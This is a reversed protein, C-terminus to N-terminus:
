PSPTQDSSFRRKVARIPATLRWSTSEHLMRVRRQLDKLEKALAAKEATSRELAAEARVLKTRHGEAIRTLAATESFRVRNAAEVEARVEALATEAGSQAHRQGEAAARRAEDRENLASALDTRATALAAEAATLRARLDEAMRTLAATEAFREARASELAAQAAGLQSRTQDLAAEATALQSRTQDLSAETRGLRSRTQDLATETAALRAQMDEAAATLAATEALRRAEAQKLAEDREARTAALAAQAEALAAKAAEAGTRLDFIESQTRALKTGREDYATQLQGLAAQAKDLEAKMAAASKDARARAEAQATATAASVLGQGSRRFIREVDSRLEGQVAAEILTTLPRPLGDGTAVVALGSEAPFHVHPSSALFRRLDRKDAAAPDGAGIGHLVLVGPKSLCALLAEGSPRGEAPLATLDVFLLDTGDQLIRDMAAEVPIGGALQSLGDYLMEQHAKLRDPVPGDAKGTKADAWFGYGACRGDSGNRDLAQCLAFHAAGDNCGLVAVRRPGLVKGLWFLLPLHATVPSQVLFRPKWFLSEFLSPTLFAESELAPVSNPSAKAVSRNTM